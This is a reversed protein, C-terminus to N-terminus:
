DIKLYEATQFLSLPLQNICIGNFHHIGRIDPVYGNLFVFVGQFNGFIKSHVVAKSSREEATEGDGDFKFYCVKHTFFIYREKTLRLIYAM